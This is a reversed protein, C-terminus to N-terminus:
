KALVLLEDSSHCLAILTRSIESMNDQYFLDGTVM